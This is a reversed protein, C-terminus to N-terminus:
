GSGEPTGPRCPAGPPGLDKRLQQTVVGYGSNEYLLRARTNAGFVNLMLAGVGAARVADEAAALLPRGLGTGRHGPDVTLDYLFACGPTGRPHVLAIWLSGVASGDPHLGRLLLMGETAPGGPLLSAIERGAEEVAGAASWNGATVQEGAYSRALTERWTGFEAGTMARVRLDVRAGGGANGDM